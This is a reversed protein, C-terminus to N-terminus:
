KLPHRWFKLGQLDEEEEVQLWPQTAGWGQSLFSSFPALLLPPPLSEEFPCLAARSHWPCVPERWPSCPPSRYKYAGLAACM